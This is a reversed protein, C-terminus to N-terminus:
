VVSQLGYSRIKRYLSSRAIGLAAAAKVRNGGEERLAKVIADRELSEMPSLQRRSRHFCYGPLDDAQIEGVPRRTLATTLADELQTINGPWSYRTIIAMAEASLRIPRRPSLKDLVAAALDPLDDARHRLPPVSVSHQFYPLLKQFPLRDDNLSSDTATAAFVASGVQGSITTLFKELQITDTPTLTHINRFIYITPIPSASVGQNAGAYAELGSDIEDFQLSRGGPVAQHYAEVLLSFKGTTPEGFLLLSEQKRLAATVDSWTRKWAPSSIIGRASATGLLLLPLAKAAAPVTDTQPLPSTASPEDVVKVVEVVIGATDDGSRVVTGRVHVQRGPSLEVIDTPYDGRTALYAAHRQLVQMEEHTFLNQALTNSMTFAGGVAIIASRSRGQVGLFAEFLAQQRADRDHLLSQEIDRAAARVISHILPSSHETLCSVDLVGEIRGSIPDRIPAGSCAFSQFREHFHEPGIIHVPQGSELVTGVGNTGIQDEGYDFGPALSVADLLLGITRTTDARTVVRAHSDTLAISLPIDATVECLREITPHSCRALRSSNDVDGHFPVEGSTASVGAQQSRQWSAAVIDPVAGLQAEGSTLFGARAAAIRLRRDAPDM